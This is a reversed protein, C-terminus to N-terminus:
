LIPIVELEVLRSMFSERVGVIIQIRKRGDRHFGTSSVYFDNHDVEPVLEKVKKSLDKINVMYYDAEEDSITKDYKVRLTKM